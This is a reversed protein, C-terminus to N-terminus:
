QPAPLQGTRDSALVRPFELVSVSLM